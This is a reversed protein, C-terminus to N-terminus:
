LMSAKRIRQDLQNIVSLSVTPDFKRAFFKLNKKAMREDLKFEHDLTFVNPSCGCWDVVNKHQCKCGLRRIWNTM